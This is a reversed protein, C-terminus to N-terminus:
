GNELEARRQELRNIADIYHQVRGEPNGGLDAPKDWSSEDFTEPEIGLQMLVAYLQVRMTSLEVEVIRKKDSLTVEDFLGM